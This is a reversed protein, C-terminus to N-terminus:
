PPRPRTRIAMVSVVAGTLALLACAAMAWRFGYVFSVKIAEGVVEREDDSFDDPIAIAGLKGSQDLIEQQKAPDLTTSGLEDSLRGSFTAVMIAGIVAVALLAAVRSVSNNFGSAAGSLGTGVSLASKTIPAIALAMGIGFLALGPLFHKLYSAEPGGLILWALGAAVVAPGLIMQLRPGIRDALAGAPAALFTILVIPPLM